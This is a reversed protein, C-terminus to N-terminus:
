VGFCADQIFWISIQNPINYIAELVQAYNAFPALRVPHRGPLWLRDAQSIILSM